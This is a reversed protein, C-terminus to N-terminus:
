VKNKNGVIFLIFCVIFLGIQSFLISLVENTTPMAILMPRQALQCATNKLVQRKNCFWIRIIERDYQLDEALRAM